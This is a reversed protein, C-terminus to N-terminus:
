DIRIVNYHSCSLFVMTLPSHFLYVRFFFFLSLSLFAICSCFCSLCFLALLNKIKVRMIMCYIRFSFFSFFWHVLCSFFFFFLFRFDSMMRIKNTKTTVKMMIIQKMLMVYFLKVKMIIFIIILHQWILLGVFNKVNLKLIFKRSQFVGNKVGLFYLFM